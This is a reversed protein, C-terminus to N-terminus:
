GGGSRSRKQYSGLFGNSVLFSLPFGLSRARLHDGGDKGGVCAVLDKGSWHRSRGEGGENMLESYTLPIYLWVGRGSVCGFFPFPYFGGRGWIGRAVKGRVGSAGVCSWEEGIVGGALQGEGEGM